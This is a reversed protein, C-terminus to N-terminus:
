LEWLDGLFCAPKGAQAATRLAEEVNEVGSGTSARDHEVISERIGFALSQYLSEGLAGKWKLARM